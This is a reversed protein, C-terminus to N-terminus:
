PTVPTESIEVAYTAAVAIEGRYVTLNRGASGAITAVGDVWNSDTQTGDM